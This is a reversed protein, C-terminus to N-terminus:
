LSFFDDKSDSATEPEDAPETDKAQDSDTKTTTQTKAKAAVKEFDIEYSDATPVFRMGVVRGIAQRLEDIQGGVTNIDFGAALVFRHTKNGPHLCNPLHAQHLCGAMRQDMNEVTVVITQKKSNVDKVLGPYVEDPEPDPWPELTLTIPKPKRM